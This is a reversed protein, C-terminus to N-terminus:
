NEIYKESKFYAVTLDVVMGYSKKGETGQAKLYVDNVAGSVASASSDRYKKFFRSYAIEERYVDESLQEFAAYYLEKDAKSEEPIRSLHEKIAAFIDERSSELLLCRKCEQM